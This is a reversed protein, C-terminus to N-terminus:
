EGPARAQRVVAAIGAGVLTVGLLLAVATAWVAADFSGPALVRQAVFGCFALILCGWIITGTRPRRAEAPAGAAPPPAPHQGPAPPAAPTPDPTPVTM